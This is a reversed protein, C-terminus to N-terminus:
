FKARLGLTVVRGIPNGTFNDYGSSGNYFAPAQDFINDVNFFLQSGALSGGFMGNTFTYRINLDFVHQAKVKDGGGIPSSDGRTILPTVTTSSWNRYSGIYTDFVDAAFNGMEWGINFRAQTRVAGFTSNVGTTNLISYFEQGGSLHQKFKLFRTGAVGFNFTGYSDTPLSYRVDLDIGTTNVNNFNGQRGSVLYHITPPLSGTLSAFPPLKADLDAQTAGNPYFSILGLSPTNLANIMSTGTIFNKYNVTFMTASVRFGPVITPTFDFGVSWSNSKSPKPDAAAGNFLTGINANLVCTAMAATCAGGAALPVGVVTPFDATKVSITGSNVNIGGAPCSSGYCTFSSLGGRSLDGVSYMLPAVFSTAWNARLKLGEVIEWDGGIRPNITEGVDSYEDWRISANLDLRRVLPVGMDPSVIPIFSEAFASKVDRDLPITLYSSGTSSPGTNTPSTQNILLTYKVYEAGGALRVPGAPLDFAEGDAGVRVQQVGYEWPADTYNDILKRRVDASTRNAAGTNWVDLANATTLPLQTIFTTTNPISPQNLNGSSNTTGNLYLNACSSCVTGVTQTRSFSHAYLGMGTVRWTEGLKYEVNGAAYYNRNNVLNYAGPGLLQDFNFQVQQFTAPGTYGVPNQYFPNAQAGTQFARSNTTGRPLARKAEYDSFVGDIAVNLRDTFQYSVRSMVNYRDESALLQNTNFSSCVANAANNAVPTTASVGLYLGGAAGPQITVPDCAFNLYNSGGKARQDPFTSPRHRQDLPDRHSYSGAIWFNGADFDQGWILDASRTQYHDGFGAQSSVELGRFSKRTVFNIVGAVADSGYISSAGDALVEVRQIANPPLMGPDPLGAHLGVPAMRHGDILVLTSYSSTAGLNHIAPPANGQSTQGINSLAPVSKLIQNVTQAATSEIAERDVAILAAGVPAVGRISTGTVVIEEIATQDEPSAQAFAAAPALSAGVVLAVVSGRSFLARLHKM